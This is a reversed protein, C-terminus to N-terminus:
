IVIWIISFAVLLAVFLLGPRASLNKVSEMIPAFLPSYIPQIDRAELPGQSREARRLFVQNLSDEVQATTLVAQPTVRGNERANDNM